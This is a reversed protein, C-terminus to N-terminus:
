WSFSICSSLFSAKCIVSLFLLSLCLLFPFINGDSHLIGFFLLLLYSAKKLSCHLFISSFFLIPFISSIDELFNCIPIPFIECLSPCMLSCFHYPCLLPLLYKSSTSFYVSSNGLFPRLSRCLWSPTTVSRSGSMRFHSTLHPKPPM